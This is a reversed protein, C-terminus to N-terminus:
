RGLKGKLPLAEAEAQYKLSELEETRQEVKAYSVSLDSEQILNKIMQTDNEVTLKMSKNENDVKGRETSLATFREQSRDKIPEFTEDVESFFEKFLKIKGKVVEHPSSGASYETAPISKYLYYWALLQFYNSPKEYIKDETIPQPLKDTIKQYETLIEPIKQERIAQIQTQDLNTGNKQMHDIFREIYKSRHAKFEESNHGILSDTKNVLAKHNVENQKAHKLQDQVKQNQARLKKETNNIVDTLPAKKEKLQKIQLLAENIIVEEETLKSGVAANNRDTDTEQGMTRITNRTLDCHYPDLFADYIQETLDRKSSSENLMKKFSAPARLDITTKTFSSFFPRLNPM